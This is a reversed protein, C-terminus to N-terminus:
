QEGHVVSLLLQQAEDVVTQTTVIDNDLTVTEDSVATVRHETVVYVTDGVKLDRYSAM